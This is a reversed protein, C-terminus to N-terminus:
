QTPTSPGLTAAAGHSWDSADDKDNCATLTLAALVIALAMRGRAGSLRVHEM